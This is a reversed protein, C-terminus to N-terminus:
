RRGSRVGGQSVTDAQLDMLMVGAKAYNFGPQLHSRLGLVHRVGICRHRGDTQATAHLNLPQIASSRKSRSTRVFCMVQHGHQRTQSNKRGGPQRLPQVNLDSLGTVAVLRAPAPLKKGRTRGLEVCAHRCGAGHAWCWRGSAQITATDLQALDLATQIGGENLQASAGGL